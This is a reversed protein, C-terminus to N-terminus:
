EISHEKIEFAKETNFENYDLLAYEGRFYYDFNENFYHTNGGISVKFLVIRNAGMDDYLMEWKGKKEDFDYWDNMGLVNNKENLKMHDTAYGSPQLVITAYYNDNGNHHECKITITKNKFKEMPDVVVETEIENEETKIDSNDMVDVMANETTVEKEKSQNSGCSVLLVGVSLLVILGKKM